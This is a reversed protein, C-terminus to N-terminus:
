SPEVQLRAEITFRPGAPDTYTEPVERYSEPVLRVTKTLAPSQSNDTHTFTLANDKITDDKFARVAARLTETVHPFRCDLFELDDIGLDYVVLSGDALRDSVTRSADFSHPGRVLGKAFTVSTAGKTWVVSPM